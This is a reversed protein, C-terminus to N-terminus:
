KQALRLEELAEACAPNCLLAKEFEAEAEQTRGLARAIRGRFVYARDIRPNLQLAKELLPRAQAAAGEGPALSLWTAWGMCAHFEAEEPYLRAAEAYAQLAAAADGEALRKEGERFRQEAELIRSVRDGDSRQVGSRMQLEYETRKQRDVLTDHAHTIQQFIEEAFARAQASAEPGLRDPHNEKALAAFAHRIELEAADPRVGLVEFLTGRRLDQARAALREVQRRQQLEPEQVDREPPEALPPPRRLLVPVHQGPSPAPGLHIMNACLLAFLLKRGDEPPLVGFAMLEAVTRNGDVLAYFQAEEPDLGMEQFRDLPDDTLLVVSEDVDGLAKRARADDYTRKIGELLTKAPTLELAVQM